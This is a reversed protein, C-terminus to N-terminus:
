MPLPGKYKLAFILFIAFLAFGAYELFQPLYIILVENTNEKLVWGNAWNNILVHPLNPYAHWGPNFSQSLVLIDDKEANFVKVRYIAPIPHNVWTYTGLRPVQLSDAQSARFNINTLLRYPIQYVSVTKISNISNQNGISINDLHINYGMGDKSMPPQIFFTTQFNKDQPLNTEIDPKRSTLNEIWFVLPTGSVNKSEVKVAYAFEHPLHLLEITLGCQDKVAILEFNVGKQCSIKVNKPLETHNEIYLETLPEIGLPIFSLM